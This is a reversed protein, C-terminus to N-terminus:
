IKLLFHFHFSTSGSLTFDFIVQTLSQCSTLLQQEMVSTFDSAMSPLFPKFLCQFMISVMLFFVFGCVGIAGGYTWWSSASYMSVFCTMSSLLWGISLWSVLGQIASKSPVVYPTSALQTLDASDLSLVPIFGLHRSTEMEFWWHMWVWPMFQRSAQHTCELYTSYENDDMINMGHSRVKCWGQNVVKSKSDTTINSSKQNWM